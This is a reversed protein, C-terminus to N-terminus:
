NTQGSPFLSVIDNSHSEYTQISGQPLIVADVRLKQTRTSAGKTQFILRNCCISQVAAQPITLINCISPSTVKFVVMNM